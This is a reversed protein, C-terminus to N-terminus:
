HARATTKGTGIITAVRPEGPGQSEITIRKAAVLQRIRYSAAAADSLGCRQAIVANSPCPLSFGAARRIERLVLEAPNTEDVEPVAVVPLAPANATTLRIALYETIGGGARQYTLTIMGEEVLAMAHKWAPAARPIDAGRAYILADKPEARAVWADFEEVSVAFPPEAPKRVATM